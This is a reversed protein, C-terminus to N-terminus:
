NLKYKFLRRLQSVAEKKHKKIAILLYDKTYKWQIQLNDDILSLFVVFM